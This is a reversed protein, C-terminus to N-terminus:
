ALPLTFAFTSGKGVESEEIFLEGGMKRIIQLSLYLGLGTGQPRDKLSTGIQQFKGFLLKQNEKSIGVGTDKVRVRAFKEEKTVSITISGVPTFKLANGILNTLIQKIREPDGKVTLPESKIEVLGLGKQMVLPRLEIVMESIVKNLEFQVINFNMKGAKIRTLDLLGNVMLILRNVATSIDALPDLLSTNVIGYDGQMIMSTFAKIAGLPTRLEHSAISVFEDRMKELQREKTVDRFVTISGEIKGEKLVPSITISVPFITGDKRLYNYDLGPDTTIINREKLGMYLPKSFEEIPKMQDNVVKCIDFITKGEIEEPKYQLQEEAAKNIFIIKGKSDCAVVGDGIGTLLAQLNAKEQQVLALNKLTEQQSEGKKIQYLYVSLALLVIIGTLIATYIQISQIQSVYYNYDIDAGMVGLIKGDFNARIPVFASMFKGWEDSYPGV